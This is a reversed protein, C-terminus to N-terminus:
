DNKVIVREDARYYVAKRGRWTREKEVIIVGGSAEIRELEGLNSSLFFLEVTPARLNLDETDVEVDGRYIVKSLQKEYVLSDADIKYTRGGAEESEVLVSQVDQRVNLANENSNLCITRGNILNPGQVLRPSDSYCIWGSDMDIEMHNATLVLPEGNQRVVSEIEDEAVIQNEKQNLVFRRAFTESSGDPGTQDGSRLISDKEGFAIIVGSVPDYTAEESLLETSSNSTRDWFRFDGVQKAGVIQGDSYTVELEQSRTQRVSDQNSVIELDVGGSAVVKRIDGDGFWADLNPARITDRGSDHISQLVCDYSATAQNLLGGIYDLEVVDNAELRRYAGARSLELDVNEVAQVKKLQQTEDLSIELSQSRVVEQDGPHESDPRRVLVVGGLLEIAEFGEGDPSFDATFSTANCQEIRLPSSQLIVRDLAKLRSLAFGEAEPLASIEGEILEAELRHSGEDSAEIYVAPVRNDLPGATGAHIEFSEPDGTLSNLGIDIVAGTFEREAGVLLRARGSSHLSTVRRTISLGVEIQEATLNYGPTQLVANGLLSVREDLASYVVQDAEAGGLGGGLAFEMKGRKGIRILREPISYSLQRGSGNAKSREFRFPGDIVIEEKELDASAEDAFVQTGGALHVVVDAEFRIEKAEIRYVAKNSEVADTPEGDSDFRVMDVGELIQVAEKTLTNTEARVRFLPDDGRLETYEFQKSLRSIEPSLLHRFTSERYGNRRSLFSWLIAVLGGILFLVLITRVLRSRFM